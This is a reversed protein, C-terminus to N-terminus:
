NRGLYLGWNQETRKANPAVITQATGTKTTSPKEPSVTWRNRHWSVPVTETGSFRDRRNQNQNRDTGVTGTRTNSRNKRWGAFFSPPREGLFALVRIKLIRDQM